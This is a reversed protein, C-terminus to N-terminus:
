FEKTPKNLVFNVRQFRFRSAQLPVPKSMVSSARKFRFWSTLCPVSEKSVADARKFRFRSTRFPTPENSVYGVRNLAAIKDIALCDAIRKSTDSNEENSSDDEIPISRETKSRNM